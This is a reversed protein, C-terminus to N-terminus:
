SLKNKRDRVLILIFVIILINAIEISFDQIGVNLLQIGMFNLFLCFTIVNKNKLFSKEVIALLIGKFLYTIAVIIISLNGFDAYISGFVGFSPAGEFMLTNKPFFMYSLRFLGFIKPKNPWIIRPIISYFNNQFTIAGHFFGDKMNTVLISFNRVYDSYGCLGLLIKDLKAGQLYRSTLYYVIVIIILMIGGIKFLSSLKYRNKNKCYFYFFILVCIPILMNTKAGTFYSIGIVFLIILKNEYTFLNIILFLNLVLMFLFTLYGFGLRSKEYFVRPNSFISIGFKHIILVIIGLLIIVLIKMVKKQKNKSCRFKFNFGSFFRMSFLYGIALMVFSTGYYVLICEYNYQPKYVYQYVIPLICIFILNTAFIYLIGNIYAKVTLSVLIYFVLFVILLAILYGM